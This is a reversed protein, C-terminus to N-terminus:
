TVYPDSTGEGMGKDFDPLGAAAIGWIYLVNERATHACAAAYSSAAAAAATAVAAQARANLVNAKHRGAAEAAQAVQAAVETAKLVEAACRAEGLTTSAQEGAGCAASKAAAATAASAHTAKAAAGKSWGALGGAAHRATDAASDAAAVAASAADVVVAVAAMNAAELPKLAEVKDALTAKAAAVQVEARAVAKDAAEAAKMEETLRPFPDCTFSMHFAYARGAPTVTARAQTRPCALVLERLM